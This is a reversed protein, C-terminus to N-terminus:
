FLNHFIEFLIVAEGRPLHYWSNKVKGAERGLREGEM